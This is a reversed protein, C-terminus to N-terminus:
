TNPLMLFSCCHRKIIWISYYFYICGGECMCVREIEGEFYLKIRQESDEWSDKPWQFTSNFWSVLNQLQSGGKVLVGECDNCFLGSLCMQLHQQLPLTGWLVCYAWHVPNSFIPTHWLRLDASWHSCVMLSSTLSSLHLSSLPCFDQPSVHTLCRIPCSEQQACVRGQEEILWDQLHLADGM